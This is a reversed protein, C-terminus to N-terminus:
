FSFHSNGRRVGGIGGGSKLPLQLLKRNRIKDFKFLIHKRVDTFISYKNVGTRKIKVTINETKRNNIRM